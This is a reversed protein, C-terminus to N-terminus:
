RERGRVAHREPLRACRRADGRLVRHLIIGAEVEGGNGREGVFHARDDPLQVLDVRLAFVLLEEFVVQKVEEFRRIGFHRSGIQLEADDRVKLEGAVAIEDHPLHVSLRDAGLIFFWRHERGHVGAVHNHLDVFRGVDVADRSVREALVSHFVMVLAVLHQVELARIRVALDFAHSRCLADRFPDVHMVVAHLEVPLEEKVAAIQRCRNFGFRGVFVLDIGHALAKHFLVRAHLVAVLYQHEHLAHLERLRELRLIHREILEDFRRAVEDVRARPYGSCDQSGGFGIRVPRGCFRGVIHEGFAEYLRTHLHDARLHVFVKGRAVAVSQIQAEGVRRRFIPAEAYLLHGRHLVHHRYVLAALFVRAQSRNRAAILYVDCCRHCRDVRATCQFGRLLGVVFLLGALRLRVVVVVVLAVLFRFLRRFADGNGARLEGAHNDM